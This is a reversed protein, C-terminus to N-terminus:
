RRCRAEMRLLVYMGYSVYFNSQIAHIVTGGRNHILMHPFTYFLSNFTGFHATLLFALRAGDLYPRFELILRRPLMHMCPHRMRHHKLCPASVICAANDRHGCECLDNGWGLERLERSCSGLMLCLFTHIACLFSWESQARDSRDYLVFIEASLLATWVLSLVTAIVTAVLCWDAIDM